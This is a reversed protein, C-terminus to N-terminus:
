LNLKFGHLKEDPLVNISVKNDTLEFTKINNESVEFEISKFEVESDFSFNLTLEQDFKHNDFGDILEVFYHWKTNNSRTIKYTFSNRSYIYCVVNDMNGIWQNSNKYYDLDKKFEEMPYYAWNGPLGISHYMFTIWSGRKKNEEVYPIVEENSNCNESQYISKGMVVCPLFYWNEPEKVDDPCVYFKESQSRGYAGRAAIFGADKNAKQTHSKKGSGGPYAYTRPNMGWQTMLDYCLKFSQYSNEYTLDDHDIHKHGHGFCKI